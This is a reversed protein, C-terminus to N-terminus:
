NAAKKVAKKAAAKLATKKFPSKKVLVGGPSHEACYNSSQLAFKVCGKFICKLKSM